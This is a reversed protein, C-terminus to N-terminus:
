HHQAPGPRQSRHGGRNIQLRSVGFGADGFHQLLQVPLQDAKRRHLRPNALDSGQQQHILGPLLQIQGARGGSQM